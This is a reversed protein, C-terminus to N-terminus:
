ADELAADLRARTEGLEVPGWVELEYSVDLLQTIRDTEDSEVASAAERRFRKEAAAGRKEPPVSREAADLIHPLDAGGDPLEPFATPGVVLVDDVAVLYYGSLAADIDGEFAARERDHGAKHALEVCASALEARTLGGFLDVVGALEDPSLDM